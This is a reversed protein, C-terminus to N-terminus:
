RKGRLPKAQVYTCRFLNVFKYLTSFLNIFPSSEIFKGVEKKGRVGGRCKCKKGQGLSGEKVGMPPLPPTLPYTSPLALAFPFKYLTSFAVLRWYGFQKKKLRDPM